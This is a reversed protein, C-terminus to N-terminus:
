KAAKAKEARKKRVEKPDAILPRYIEVRDGEKVQYDAKVGKGFVGLKAAAVDADAFVKEVGAQEVAQRATTGPEVDLSFIRQQHPLAYSVEIKM